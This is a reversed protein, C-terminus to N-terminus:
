MQSLIFAYRRTKLPVKHFEIVYDHLFVETGFANKLSQLQLQPLTLSKSEKFPILNNWDDMVTDFYEEECGVMGETTYKM